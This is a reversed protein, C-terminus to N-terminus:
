AEEFHYGMTCALDTNMACPCPDFHRCSECRACFAEYGELEV